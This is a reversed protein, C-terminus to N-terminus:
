PHAILVAFPTPAALNGVDYVRACYTGPELTSTLHPGAGAQVNLSTTTSCDTADPVGIGVGVWVTEPVGTVGGVNQLTLTVTGYEGVDFSYFRAGHVALIGTFTQTTTPEIPTETTPTDTPSTPSNSDSCGTLPLAAVCLLSLGARAAWERFCRVTM